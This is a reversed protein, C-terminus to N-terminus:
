RVCAVRSRFAATSPAVGFAESVEVGLTRAMAAIIANHHTTHSLAFLLERGFTTQVTVQSGDGAILGHLTVHRDFDIAGLQLIRLQLGIAGAIAANRRTEVDTGRQRNDYNMIGLAFGGLLTAIHDLCHRVHGGISSEFVGVPQQCFADDDLRELLAIIEGLQRSLAQLANHTDTTPCQPRRSENSISSVSM